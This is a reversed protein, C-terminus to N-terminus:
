VRKEWRGSTGCAGGVENEKIQLNLVCVCLIVPSIFKATNTGWGAGNLNENQIGIFSTEFNCPYRHSACVNSRIQKSCRSTRLVYRVITLLPAVRYLIVCFLRYSLECLRTISFSNPDYTALWGALWGDRQLNGELQPRRVPM